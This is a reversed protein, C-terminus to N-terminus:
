RRGQNTVPLLLIRQNLEKIEDLWNDLFRPNIYYEGRKILHKNYTKWDRKDEFKKGWRKKQAM